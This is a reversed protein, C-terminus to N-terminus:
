ASVRIMEFFPRRSFRNQNIFYIADQLVVEVFYPILHTLFVDCCTSKDGFESAVEQKWRRYEPLLLDIYYDINEDLELLTRAVYYPEDPKFGAM